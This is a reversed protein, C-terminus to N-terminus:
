EFYSQDNNICQSLTRLYVVKIELVSATIM